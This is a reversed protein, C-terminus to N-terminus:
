GTLGAKRGLPLSFELNLMSFNGPLTWTQAVNPLM